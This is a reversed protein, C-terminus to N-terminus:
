MRNYQLGECNVRHAKKVAHLKESCLAEAAHKLVHTHVPLSYVCM